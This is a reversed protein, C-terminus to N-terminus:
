LYYYRRQRQRLPAFGRSFPLMLRIYDYWNGNGWTGRGRVAKESLCSEEKRGLCRRENVEDFLKCCGRRSM